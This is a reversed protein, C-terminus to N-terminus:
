RVPPGLAAHNDRQPEHLVILFLSNDEEVIEGYAIKKRPGLSEQCCQLLLSERM